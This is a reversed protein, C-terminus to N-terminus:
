KVEQDNEVLIENEPQMDGLENLQNIFNNRNEMLYSKLNGFECYDIIVFFEEVFHFLLIQYKRNDTKKM